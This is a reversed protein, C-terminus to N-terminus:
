HLLRLYHISSVMYNHPVLGGMIKQGRLQTGDIQEKVKRRLTAVMKDNFCDVESFVLHIPFGPRRAMEQVRTRM